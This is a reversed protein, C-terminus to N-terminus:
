PAFTSNYFESCEQQDTMDISFAIWENGIHFFNMNNYRVADPIIIKIFGEFKEKFLNLDIHTEIYINAQM